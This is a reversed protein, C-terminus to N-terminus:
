PVREVSLKVTYGTTHTTLGYLTDGSRMLPLSNGRSSKLAVGRGSAVVIGSDRITSTQSGRRTWTVTYTGDEKIQLTVDGELVSGGSGHGGAQWFTGHWTGSLPSAIASPSVGPDSLSSGAGPSQGACGAALVMLATSALGTVIRHEIM